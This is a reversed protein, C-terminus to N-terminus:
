NDTYIMLIILGITTLKAAYSHSDHSNKLSILNKENSKITIYPVEGNKLRKEADKIYQDLKKKSTGKIDAKKM